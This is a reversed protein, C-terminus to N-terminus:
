LAHQAPLRPVAEAVRLGGLAVAATSQGPFISDGVMWLDPALGPAWARFLSTQPFGGVWGWSADPSASSPSRPAAGHSLEHEAHLGPLADNQWPWWGSWTRPRASNTASAIKNISHGGPSCLRHAHQHHRVRQGKLPVRGKDWAPSMSVFVTNGEGLPERVIVQHHLPADPPLISEDIGAYVMFAGWGDEPQPPLDRLKAPAADGLLKAINWPPLNAM